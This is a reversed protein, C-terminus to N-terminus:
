ATVLTATLGNVKLVRRSSGSAPVPALARWRARDIDHFLVVVGIFRTGKTLERTITHTEGPRLVLEQSGLDDAGLTQHEHETLAFVDAREFSGSAALQYLHVAVSQPHGSSDPNQSPGGIVTLKLVAPPPTSACAALLLAPVALFTRRHIM